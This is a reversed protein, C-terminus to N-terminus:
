EVSLSAGGPTVRVTLTLGLHHAVRVLTELAPTHQGAELRAVQSQHLFLARGLQRQTLGRAARYAAVAEGLQTAVGPARYFGPGVEEVEGWRSPDDMEAALADLEADTLETPRAGSSGVAEGDEAPAASEGAFGAASRVQVDTM